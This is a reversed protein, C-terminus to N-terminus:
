GGLIRISKVLLCLHIKSLWPTIKVRIIWQNPGGSNKSHHELAVSAIQLSLSALSGYWFCVRDVTLSSRCDNSHLDLREVLQAIM